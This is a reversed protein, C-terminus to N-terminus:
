RFSRQKISRSLKRAANQTAFDLRRLRFTIIDELEFRRFLLLQVTRPINALCVWLESTQRVYVFNPLEGFM